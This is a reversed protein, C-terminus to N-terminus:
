KRAASARPHRELHSKVFAEALRQVAPPASVAVFTGSISNFQLVGHERPLHDRETCYAVKLDNGRDDKVFFRVSDHARDKPL